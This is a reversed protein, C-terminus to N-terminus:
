KAAKKSQTLMAWAEPTFKFHVSGDPMTGSKLRDRLRDADQLFTILREADAMRTKDALARAAIKGARLEPLVARLSVICEEVSSFVIEPTESNEFDSPRRRHESSNEGEADAESVGNKVGKQEESFPGSTEHEIGMGRIFHREDLDEIREAFEKASRALDWGLQARWFKVFELWIVAATRVITAVDVHV